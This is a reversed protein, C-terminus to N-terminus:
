NFKSKNALWWKSWADVASKNNDQDPNYGFDEGAIPRLRAIANFRIFDNKDGLARMYEEITKRAKLDGIEYKNDTFGADVLQAIPTTQNNNWWTTWDASNAGLDRNLIRRISKFAADSVTKKEDKMRAILPPIMDPTAYYPMAEVAAQRIEPKDSASLQVVLMRVDAAASYKALAVMAAKLVRPDTDKLYKIIAQKAPDSNFAGLANVAAVRLHYDQQQFVQTLPGIAKEDGIKGLAEIALLRSDYGATTLLGILIDVGAESRMLGLAFIAARADDGKAQAFTQLRKMADDTGINGLAAIALDREQRDMNTDLLTNLAAAVDADGKAWSLGLGRLANLRTQRDAYNLAKILFDKADKSDISALAAVAARYLREDGAYDVALKAAARPDGYLGLTEMAAIRMERRQDNLLGIVADIAAPDLSQKISNLATMRVQFEPDSLAQVLCQTAAEDRFQGLAMLAEIRAILASSQALLILPQETEPGGLKNLADAAAKLFRREQDTTAAAYKKVQAAIAPIAERANKESLAKLIEQGVSADGRDLMKLLGEVAKPDNIESIARVVDMQMSYDGRSVAADVLPEVIDPTKFQVLGRIAAKLVEPETESLAKVLLDKAKDDKIGGLAEVAILRIKSDKDRICGAIATVAANVVAADGASSAAAGITGLARLIEKKLAPDKEPRLFAVLQGVSKETNIKRLVEIQSERASTDTFKKVTMVMDVKKDDDIQAAKLIELATIAVAEDKDALGKALLALEKDDKTAPPIGGVITKRVQADPKDMAQLFADLVGPKDRRDSLQVVADGRVKDSKDKLALIFLDTEGMDRYGALASVVARKNDESCTPFVSLLAAVAEPKNFSAVDKIVEARLEDERYRLADVLADFAPQSKLDALRKAANIRDEMKGSRLQKKLAEVDQNAPPPAAGDAFARPCLLLVGTFILVFVVTARRM